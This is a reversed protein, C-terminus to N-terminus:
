GELYSKVLEYSNFLGLHFIEQICYTLEVRSFRLSELLTLTQMMESNANVFELEQSTKM